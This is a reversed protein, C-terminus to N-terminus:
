DFLRSVTSSDKKMQFFDFQNIDTPFYLDYGFASPSNKKNDISSMNISSVLKFAPTVTTDRTENPRSPLSISGINFPDKYTIWNDISYSCGLLCILLLPLVIRKMSKTPNNQDDM